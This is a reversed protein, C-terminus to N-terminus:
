LVACKYFSNRYVITIRSKLIGGLLSEWVSQSLDSLSLCVFGPQAVLLVSSTDSALEISLLNIQWPDLPPKALREQIFWFM